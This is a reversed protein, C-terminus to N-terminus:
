PASVTFVGRDTQGYVSRDYMSAASASPVAFRGEGTLKVRYRLETVRKPFTGYLVVRDERVDLTQARWGGYSDRVSERLVEFGGPLLDTVAVNTRERDLARVRLQVTLEDGLRAETVPRDADDLYVRDVEIGRAVADPSPSRDYGQQSLTYYVPQGRGGGVVASDQGVPLDRRAFIFPAETDAGPWGISLTPLDDRAQAARTVEGLALVVYAASLTNFRDQMVPEVLAAISVAQREASRAPFHRALLYAHQADRAHRTDFDSYAVDGGGPTYADILPGALADQKLLAYTAALHSGAIDRRWVDAHNQELWEHLSTAPGSTVVQNRTLVYIAYARVRADGLTEVRRGAATQLYNVGADRMTRPVPLGRETADALFHLIYVSAFRDSGDDGLWFSFGGDPRQRARLKRILTDFDRRIRAEDLASDRHGLLGVQPFVKSTMQEACEHPFSTLYDLLGDVLILPSASASVRQRALEPRLDRTVSVSVPDATSTEATLTTKYAVSPRVSLSARRRVTQDGFTASFRLEADGLQDLARLRVKVQGEGNPAVRISQEAGDLIELHDSATVRLAVDAASTAGEIQNSISLGVTFEDGPAAANLVSPTLILPGRVVARSQEHGAAEDNVAVAMLRVEGNFYDPVTWEIKKPTPGTSVVGSWFVVPPEDRRRFPNLNGEALGLADGGGPAARRSWAAFEPLILDVMQHTRVQLARKQLFFDLPRPMDYRAVQLIGEDVAFVLTRAPQDTSVHVSLTEGPAIRPESTLDVAITRAARNIAFPVVAYSLPSVFVDPSDLARVFAVNVYANGELDEPITIRQVSTRTRTTFWHHRYVRDREITILGTGTYPATIELEIEQGAEFREGSLVVDLQADRELNGATNRAGAVMFDVSAVVADGDVLQLAFRGPQDTPLALDVGAEPIAVSTERVVSSQRVSEYAFSGNPRKVLTSVYKYALLRQTLNDRAAAAGTADVNIVSLAHESHRTLFSLDSQTRYGILADLPSVMASTRARVSRGGGSEYGEVDVTLRYLGGQYRSLDVPLRARGEDDTQDSALQSRVENLQANDFRLPDEFRYDAFDDFEIAAPQLRYRGEIRRQAAPAGFLNDLQVDIALDGPKLWGKAPNDAIRTRMRLRDPEFEEVSFSADGIIRQYGRRTIIEVTAQYVGTMAAVETPIAREMFGDSLLRETHEHVMQGRPDRVKLTVPVAGIAGWDRRKVIAGLKVTEGPRYLGRDTFVLARLRNAQEPQMYEGGVDFRSYQVRRGARGFPMFVTDAGARVLWAVPERERKLGRIDPFVAHGSADSTATAAPLGNRGLLMVAAGALPEGTAISHVFVDQRRDAADKALLGIDTVLVLRRDRSGITRDRARDYGQVTIVFLSGEGLFPALDLQAYTAQSPHSAALDIIRETRATINDESFQYNAFAASRIDGRTQSALHAVGEDLVRAVDVKLARVGRGILTLQRSGTLPLLAGSQAITAEKPYTPLKVVADHARTMEFEGTSVLGPEIRVYLTSADPENVSISHLASARGEIPNLRARVPTSQALVDPTVERPSRWFRNRAVRGDIVPHKPLTYVTLRAQLADPSVRDTFSLLVTQVPDDDENRVLQASVNDVRFYSARDPIRLSETLADGLADAGREARVGTAISLRMTTEVDPIALTESRLYAVRGHQDLSLEYPVARADDEVTQGADRTVLDIAGRLSDLDVAHTFSLTAVAQRRSAVAPDQYFEFKNLSVAFSPTVFAVEGTGVSLNPAFVSDNYQITYRQGSPWPVKPVFRLTNEDLWRWQGSFAPRLTLGATVTEGVRNLAAVSSPAGEPQDTSVTFHVDLPSPVLRDDTITSLALPAVDPVLTPPKPLSDYYRQLALAAIALGLLALCAILLWRAGGRMWWLPPHWVITGLLGKWRGESM